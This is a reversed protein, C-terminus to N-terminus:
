QQAIKNWKEEKINTCVQDLRQDRNHVNNHKVLGKPQIMLYLMM